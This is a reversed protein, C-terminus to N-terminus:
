QQLFRKHFNVKVFDVAEFFFQTRNLLKYKRHQITLIPSTAGNEYKYIRNISEGYCGMEIWKVMIITKVKKSTCAFIVFHSDGYKAGCWIYEVSLTKYYKTRKSLWSTARIRVCWQWFSFVKEYMEIAYEYLVMKWCIFIYIHFSTYFYYLCWCINQIQFTICKRRCLYSFLWVWVLFSFLPFFIMWQMASILKWRDFNTAPMSFNFSSCFHFNLIFFLVCIVCPMLKLMFLMLYSTPVQNLNLWLSCNCRNKWKVMAIAILKDLTVITASKKLSIIDTM